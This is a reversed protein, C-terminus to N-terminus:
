RQGEASRSRRWWVVGRARVRSRQMVQHIWPEEEASPASSLRRRGQRPGGSGRDVGQVGDSTGGRGEDAWADDVQDADEDAWGISGGDLETLSAPL